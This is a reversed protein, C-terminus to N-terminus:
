KGRGPDSISCWWCTTDTPLVSRKCQKCPVDMSTHTELVYGNRELSLIEESSMKPRTYTYLSYRKNLIQKISDKVPIDSRTSFVKSKCNYTLLNVSAVYNKDIDLYSYYDIIYFNTNFDKISFTYISQKSVKNYHYQNLHIGSNRFALLIDQAFSFTVVEIQSIGYGDDPFLPTFEGTPSICGRISEGVITAGIEFFSEYIDKHINM